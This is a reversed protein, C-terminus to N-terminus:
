MRLLSKVVNLASIIKMRIKRVVFIVIFRQRTQSHFLKRMQHKLIQREPFVNKQPTPNKPNSVHLGYAVSVIGISLLVPFAVTLGFYDPYVELRLKCVSISWKGM